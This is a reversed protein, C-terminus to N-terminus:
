YGNAAFLPSQPSKETPKFAEIATNIRNEYILRKCDTCVVGSKGAELWVIEVQDAILYKGCNECNLPRM